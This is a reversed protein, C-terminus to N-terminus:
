QVNIGQPNKLADRVQTLLQLWDVRRGNGIIDIRPLGKGKLIYFGGKVDGVGNMLCVDSRLQCSLGVRDYGFDDFFKLAGSQLAAAVGGGGGGIDSLNQV